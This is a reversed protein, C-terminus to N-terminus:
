WARYLITAPFCANGSADVMKWHSVVTCPYAPATFRISIRRIEDPLTRPIDISRKEALLGYPRGPKEPELSVSVRDDICVLRRGKWIRKGTNQIEWIKDFCQGTKVIANDPYTIDGIFGIDDDHYFSVTRKETNKAPFETSNFYARFLQLPYKEAIRM